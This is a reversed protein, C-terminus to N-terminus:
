RTSNGDPDHSLELGRAVKNPPLLQINVYYQNAQQVDCWGCGM